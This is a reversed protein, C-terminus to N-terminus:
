VSVILVKVSFCDAGECQFTHVYVTILVKVSFCTHVYVTILVKM